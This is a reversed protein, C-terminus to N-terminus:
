WPQRVGGKWFWEYVQGNSQFCIAKKCSDIYPKWQGDGDAPDTSLCYGGANEVGFHVIERSGGFIKYPLDWEEIYAEDIFLADDGEITIVVHTINLKNVSQIDFFWDNLVLDISSINKSASTAVAGLRTKGDYFDCIVKSVTGENDIGSKNCDMYFRYEYNNNQAILKSSNFLSMVLLSCVTLVKMTKM